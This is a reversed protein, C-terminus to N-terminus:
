RLLIENSAASQGCSNVAIVRVYATFGPPVSASVLPVGGVDGDFLDSFGPLSGAQVVYSTAGPVVTWQVTAVGGAVSGTVGSATAPPVTCVTGGGSGITFSVENSIESTSASRRARVRVYYTGPGVKGSLETTLGVSGNYLDTRRASSGVELLYELVPLGGVASWTLTVTSGKVVAPQMVVGTTGDGPGGFIPTTDDVTGGGGDGTTGGGGTTVTTTSAIVTSVENSKPGELTSSAYAAVAFYYRQGVLGGLFSWTTVKGLYYSTAYVGPATGVYVRYGIVSTETNADWALTVPAGIQAFAASPSVIVLLCM